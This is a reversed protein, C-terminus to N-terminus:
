LCSNMKQIKEFHELGYHEIQNRNSVLVATGGAAQIIFGNEKALSMVEEWKEDHKKALDRLEDDATKVDICLQEVRSM